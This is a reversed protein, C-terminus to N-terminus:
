FVFLKKFEQVKQEDIVSPQVNSKPIKGFEFEPIENNVSVIPETSDIKPLDISPQQKGITIDGDSNNDPLDYKKQQFRNTSFTPRIDTKKESQINAQFQSHKEAGSDQNGHFQFNFKSSTPMTPVPEFQKKEPSENAKMVNARLSSSRMPKYKELSNQQKASVDPNVQVKAQELEQLASSKLPAPMSTEQKPSFAPFSKKYKRIQNVHTSYPNALHHSTESKPNESNLLSVLASATNSMKKGSSPKLVMSQSASSSKSDRNSVHSKDAASYKYVTTKYPSPLSSYDFVRRRSSTTRNSTNAASHSGFSDDYKPVYTPAGMTPVGVSPVRSNKLVRSYALDMSNNPDLTTNISSNRGSSKSFRNAKRMLSKVGEMEMESLPDGGKKAFFDALKANSIDATLSEDRDSSSEEHEREVILTSTNIGPSDHRKPLRVTSPSTDSSFFGGPISISSDKNNEIHRRKTGSLEHPVSKEEGKFLARIKGLLSPKRRGGSSIPRRYPALAREYSMYNQQEVMSVKAPEKREVTYLASDPM